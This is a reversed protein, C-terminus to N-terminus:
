FNWLKSLRPYEKEGLMHGVVAPVGEAAREEVFCIKDDSAITEPREPDIVVRPINEKAYNLLSAAPYVVLSTGVVIVFDATSVIPLVEDMVPVMEGFWVIHPRLQSGDPACDGPNLSDGDIDFILEPNATSRSKRIEGHLHFITKSGAREHLDDVNQTIITTKFKEELRVLALHGQNPKAQIVNKRRQNYFDLVLQPNRRFAEPSAVEEFRHGCWLGDAGRFTQIGSDASMGAGTLVVVHLGAGPM